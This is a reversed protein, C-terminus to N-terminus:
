RVETLRSLCVSRERRLCLHQLLNYKTTFNGAYVMELTVIPMSNIIYLLWGWHWMDLTIINCLGAAGSRHRLGWPAVGVISLRNQCLQQTQVTHIGRLATFLDVTDNFAHVSDRDLVSGCSWSAGLATRTCTRSLFTNERSREDCRKQGVSRM